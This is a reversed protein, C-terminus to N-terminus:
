PEEGGVRPRFGIEGGLRRRAADIGFAEDERRRKRVGLMERTVPKRIQKEVRQGIVGM